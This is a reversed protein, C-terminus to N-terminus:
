DISKQKNLWLEFSEHILMSIRMWLILIFCRHSHVFNSRKFTFDSLFTRIQFSQLKIFWVIIRFLSNLGFFCRKSIKTCSQSLQFISCLNKFPFYQFLFGLHFDKWFINIFCISSIKKSNRLFHQYKKTIKLKLM